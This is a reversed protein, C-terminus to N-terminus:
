LTMWPGNNQIRPSTNLTRGIGPILRYVSASLRYQYRYLFLHSISISAYIWAHINYYGSNDLTTWLQGSNHMTTCLLTFQFSQFDRSIESISSTGSVGKSHFGKFERSNGQFGKFSSSIVQFQKFDRSIQKFDRQFGKFDM